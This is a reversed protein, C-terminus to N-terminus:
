CSVTDWHRLFLLVGPCWVQVFCFGINHIFCSFNLDVNSVILRSVAGMFHSRIMFKSETRSTLRYLFLITPKSQAIYVHGGTEALVHHRQLGPACTLVDIKQASSLSSNQQSIIAPKDAAGYFCHSVLGGSNYKLRVM